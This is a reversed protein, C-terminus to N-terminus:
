QAPAQLPSPATPTTNPTPKTPASKAAEETKTKAKKNESAKPMAVVTLICLALLVIASGWTGKELVDGTRQVGIVNSAAGSFGGAMGNGKPNQVIVILIILLSVLIILISIFTYM